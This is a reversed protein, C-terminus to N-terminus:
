EVSSNRCIRPMKLKAVLKTSAPTTHAATANAIWKAALDSRRGIMQPSSCEDDATREAAVILM